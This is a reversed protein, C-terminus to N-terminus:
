AGMQPVAVRFLAYFNIVILLAAPAVWAWRAAIPWRAVLWSWGLATALGIPILAPYLYRGQHQVFQLNYWFFALLTLLALLALLTLQRSQGESLAAPEGSRRARRASAWWALFLGASAITLALFLLYLWGPLLISMWGFQGWFSQFTTRLMRALVGLSGFEALWEATTPQGVVVANHRTLGLFDLGGYMQLNHLWWPLGILGAIVGLRILRPWVARRADASAWGSRWLAFAAVPLALYATAKTWFCLGVTVALGIEQARSVAGDARILRVSQWLALAILAEALADNNFGSMMFVHQPLLGVFAATFAALAPRAPFIALATLYAFVITVAGIALSFLRMAVLNGGSAGYVPAALAYFLPPQHDEYTLREVAVDRQTPGIPVLRVDWDGPEIVPVNGTRVMQRTVNYHAPEDPTQWAPMRVALAGSLMLYTVVIAALPWHRNM